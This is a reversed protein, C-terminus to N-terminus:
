SKERPVKEDFDREFILRGAEYAEVRATVHFFEPDAWIQSFTETRVSWDDRSLTQTWHTEGRASLPDNPHISWKERAISGSSLGHDLDRVEGNDDLITLTVTGTTQDHDVNRKTSVPRLSEISWPQAAEPAEFSIEGRAAMPRVPLNLRAESLMLCVPEPTPWIMPWYANSIAIRLRHGAPLRYATQDLVIRISYREGPVLPEPFEHSKRHTLALVGYTILESAGDPHVDCLRVAINAQTQNAAVSAYLEPAGVIDISENQPSQDFCISLADDMRQDGPLEPGSTYPFYEGGALGCTEPSQILV